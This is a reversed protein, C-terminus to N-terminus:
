KILGLFQWYPVSILFGSIAIILYVFSYKSTQQFGVIEEGGSAAFGILYSPNQFQLAWVSDIAFVIFGGIWPNIGAKICFPTFLVTFLTLSTIMDILFRALFIIISITFIFLYPNGTVHSMVPSFIQAIWQNIGVASLVASLGLVGGVFTIIAWPTKTVYDVPTLVGLCTLISMGVLATIGAPVRVFNELIWFIFCFVLVVLSLKEHNTLPGMEKIKGAIIEKSMINESSPKYMKTIVFYSFFLMVIGWPLASIFWKGWTFQSSIEAPLAAMIIYAFFSASLFIPGTLGFGTYMAVALGGFGKSRKPLGLMTGISSVMPGAISIKATTSPILPAVVTGACLMAMIQGKFTPPFLQMTILTIRSLLGSKSVATGIGLVGIVLWVTSSGIQGFATSFPVIKLVVWASCMLIMTIYDPMPKLMWNVIAWLLLGLVWMSQVTLGAPPTMMAIALGVAVSILEYIVNRKTEKTIGSKKIEM